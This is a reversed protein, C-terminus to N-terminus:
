IFFPKAGIWTVGLRLSQHWYFEVDARDKKKKINMKKNQNSSPVFKGWIEQPFGMM